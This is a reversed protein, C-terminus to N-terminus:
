PTHCVQVLSDRWLPLKRVDRLIHVLELVAHNEAPRMWKYVELVRTEEMWAACMGANKYCACRVGGFSRASSGIYMGACPTSEHVHSQLRETVPEDAQLVWQSSCLQLHGQTAGTNSAMFHRNMLIGLCNAACVSSPKHDTRKYFERLLACGASEVDAMFTPAGLVEANFRGAVSDLDKM